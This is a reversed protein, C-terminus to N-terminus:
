QTIGKRKAKRQLAFPLKYVDPLKPSLAAIVRRADLKSLFPRKARVWLFM